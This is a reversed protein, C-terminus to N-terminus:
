GYELQDGEGKLYENQLLRTAPQFPDPFDLGEVPTRVGSRGARLSDSYRSRCGPGM